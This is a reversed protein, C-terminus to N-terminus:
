GEEGDIEAALELAKKQAVPMVAVLMDDYNNESKQASTEVWGFVEKIVVKAADEAVDLGQDQLRKALKDIKYAM